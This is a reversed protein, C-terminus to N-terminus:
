SVLAPARDASHDARGAPAPARWLRVALLIMALAFLAEQLFVKTIGVSATQEAYEFWGAFLVALWRPVSRSRWLAIGMVVPAVFEGFAYADTFIQGPRSNFNTVLFRAAAQRSVHATAAAALNIGVFVNVIAGCFAGIGGILAAVTAATSGRTRVLMAIAAYSVAVGGLALESLSGSVYLQTSHRAAIPLVRFAVATTTVIQDTGKPNAAECGIYLTATLPLALALLRQRTRLANNM